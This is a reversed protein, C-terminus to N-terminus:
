FNLSDRETKNNRLLNETEEKIEGKLNISFNAKNNYGELFSTL